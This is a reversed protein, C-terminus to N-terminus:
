DQVGGFFEAPLEFRYQFSKKEGKAIDWATYSSDLLADRAERSEEGLFVFVRGKEDMTIRNLSVVSPGRVKRSHGVEFFLSPSEPKPSIKDLLASSQKEYEKRLEAVSEKYAAQPMDGSRLMQHSRERDAEFQDFLRKLDERILRLEDETPETTVTPELELIAEKEKALDFSVEDETLESIDKLEITMPANAHRWSESVRTWNWDMLRAFRKQSLGVPLDIEFDGYFIERAQEDVQVSRFGMRLNEIQSLSEAVAKDTRYFKYFEARHQVLFSQLKEAFLESSHINLFSVLALFFGSIKM